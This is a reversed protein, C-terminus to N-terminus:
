VPDEQRAVPDAFRRGPTGAAGKPPQARTCPIMTLGMTAQLAVSINWQNKFYVFNDSQQASEIPASGSRATLTWM